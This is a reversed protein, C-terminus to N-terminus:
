EFFNVGALIFDLSYIVKKGEDVTILTNWLESECDILSTCPKFVFLNKLIFISTILSTLRILSVVLVVASVMLNEKQSKLIQLTQIISAIMMLVAIETEHM